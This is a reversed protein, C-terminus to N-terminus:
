WSNNRDGGRNGGFRSSSGGFGGRSGGDRGGGGFRRNGGDRNFPRRAGGEERPKAQAVNLAHGKVDKGNLGEIAAQAADDAMEIFGFGKSKGTFKDKIISASNVSGFAEFEQRLEEETLEYAINGVYINM